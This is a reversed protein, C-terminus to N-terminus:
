TAYAIFKDNYMFVCGLGVEYADYYIFFAQMDEPLTFLITM